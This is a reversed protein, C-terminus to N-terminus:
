AIVASRYHVYRQVVSWFKLVGREIRAAKSEEVIERSCWVHITLGRKPHKTLLKSFPPKLTQWLLVSKLKICQPLKSIM